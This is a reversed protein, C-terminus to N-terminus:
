YLCGSQATSQAIVNPNLEKEDAETNTKKVAVAKPPAAAVREAKQKEKERQKQRKKLESKSVQEGTAEDLYTTPASSGAGDAMIAIKNKSYKSGPPTQTLKINSIGM